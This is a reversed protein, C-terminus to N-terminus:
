RHRDASPVRVPSCLPGDHTHHVTVRYTVWSCSVFLNAHPSSATFRFVEFTTNWINERRATHKELRQKSPDHLNLPDVNKACPSASVDSTVSSGPCGNLGPLLRAKRSLWRAVRRTPLKWGSEVRPLSPPIWLLTEKIETHRSGLPSHLCTTGESCSLFTESGHLM